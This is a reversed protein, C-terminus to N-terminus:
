LRVLNPAEIGRTVGRTILVALLVALGLGLALVALGITRVQQFVAEGAAMARAAGENNFNVLKELSNSMARRPALGKSEYYSFADAKRGQRSLDMVNRRENEFTATDRVYTEYLAREEANAILREYAARKDDILKGFREFDKDMVSVMQPDTAQTHRLMVTNMRAAATDIEGLLRVSPLWNREIDLAQDRMTQTGVLGLVGLSVLLITLVTFSAILKSRIPLTQLSM